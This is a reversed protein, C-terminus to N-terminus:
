SPAVESTKERRYDTRLKTFQQFEESLPSDLRPQEELVWPLRVTFVSGKGLRSEAKVEGGLM